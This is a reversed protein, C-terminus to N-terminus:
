CLAVLMIGSLLLVSLMIVSVMFVSEARLVSPIIFSFIIVTVTLMVYMM